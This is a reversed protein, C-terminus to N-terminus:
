SKSIYYYHDNNHCCQLFFVYVMNAAPNHHNQRSGEYGAHVRLSFMKNNLINICMTSNIVFFYTLTVLNNNLYM